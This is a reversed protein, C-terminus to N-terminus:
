PAGERGSIPRHSVGEDLVVCFLPPAIRTFIERREMRAAVAKGVQEETQRARRPHGSARVGRGPPSGARRNGPTCPTRKRRSPTWGM